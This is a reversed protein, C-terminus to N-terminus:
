PVARRKLWRMLAGVLPLKEYLEEAADTQKLEDLLQAVAYLYMEQGPPLPGARRAALVVFPVDSWAPQTDLARRLHHRDTGLTEETLVVAGVQDDIRCSVHHLDPCITADYGERELLGAISEADRGFPALILVKHGYRATRHPM